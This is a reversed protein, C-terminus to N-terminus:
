VRFRSVWFESGYRGFRAIRLQFADFGLGGFGLDLASRLAGCGHRPADM